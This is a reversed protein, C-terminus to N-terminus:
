KSSQNFSQSVSQSILYSEEESVCVSHGFTDNIKKFHDLDIMFVTLSLEYRKARAFESELKEFFLRRNILGTLSDKTQLIIKKKVWVKTYM